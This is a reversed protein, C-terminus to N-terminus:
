VGRRSEFHKISRRSFEWEEDSEILYLEEISGEANGAIYQAAFIDREDIPEDTAHCMYYM